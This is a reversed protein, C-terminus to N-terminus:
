NSIPVHPIKWFNFDSYNDDAQGQGQSCVSEAASKSSSMCTNADKGSVSPPQSFATSYAFASASASIPSNIPSFPPLSSASRPSRTQCDSLFRFIPIASSFSLKDM